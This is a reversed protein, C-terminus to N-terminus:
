HTIILSYSIAFLEVTEKMNIHCLILYDLKSVNKKQFIMIIQETEREYHNLSFIFQKFIYITCTKALLAM